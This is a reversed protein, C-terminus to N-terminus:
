RLIKMLHSLQDGDLHYGYGLDGPLHDPHVRTRTVWLEDVADELAQVALGHHLFLFSLYVWCAMQLFGTQLLLLNM